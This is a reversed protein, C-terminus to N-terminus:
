QFQEIVKKFCRRFNLGYDIEHSTKPQGGDEAADQQRDQFAVGLKSLPPIELIVKFLPGGGQKRCMVSM